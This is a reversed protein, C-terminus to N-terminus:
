AFQCLLGNVKMALIAELLASTNLFGLKTCTKRWTRFMSTINAWATKDKPSCSQYFETACDSIYVLLVYDQRIYGMEQGHPLKPPLVIYHFLYKLDKLSIEM